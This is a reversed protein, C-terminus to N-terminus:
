SLPHTSISQYSRKALFSHNLLLLFHEEIEDEDSSATLNNVNIETSLLLEANTMGRRTAQLKKM